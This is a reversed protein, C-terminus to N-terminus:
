APVGTKEGASTTPAPRNMHERLWLAGLLFCLQVCSNTLQEAWQLELSQEPQAALPPLINTGLTYVIFLVGVSPKGGRFAAVCLTIGLFSAGVAAAILLPWNRYEGASISMWAAGIGAALPFLVFGLPSVKRGRVASLVAWAVAAFGFALCPFLLSELWPYEWCGTAVLLKWIAKGFGGASVLLGGLLAVPYASPVRARVAGALVVFASLALLCPVFDEVALAVDYETCVDISAALVSM